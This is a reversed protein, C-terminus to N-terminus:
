HDTRDRLRVDRDLAKSFDAAFERVFELNVIVTNVVISAQPSVALALSRLLQRNEEIAAALVAAKAAHDKRNITAM